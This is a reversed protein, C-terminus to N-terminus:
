KNTSCGNNFRIKAVSIAALMEYYKDRKDIIRMLGYGILGFAVFYIILLFFMKLLNELEGRNLQEVYNNFITTGIIGFVGLGALKPMTWKSKEKEVKLKVYEELQTIKSFFYGESLLGDYFIKDRLFATKGAERFLDKLKQYGYFRLNLRKEIPLYRLLVLPVSAVIMGLWLPYQRIFFSVLVLLVVVGVWNWVTLKETHLRGIDKFEEITNEFQSIVDEDRVVSLSDDM